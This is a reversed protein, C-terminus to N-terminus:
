WETWMSLELTQRIRVWFLIKQDETARLHSLHLKACSCSMHCWTLSVNFWFTCLTHIIFDGKAAEASTLYCWTSSILPSILWFNQCNAPRSMLLSRVSVTPAFDNLTWWKVPLFIWPPATVLRGLLKHWQLRLNHLVSLFGSLLESTLTQAWM